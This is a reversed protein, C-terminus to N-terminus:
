QNIEKQLNELSNNLESISTELKEAVLDGFKTRKHYKRPPGQESEQWQYELLGDKMLRNLLPYITGEVVVLDAERLARIIDSTYMAEKACLQLVCYTLFGKKLQIALQDAYNSANKQYHAEANGPYGDVVGDLNLDAKNTEDNYNNQKM